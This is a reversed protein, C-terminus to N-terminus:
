LSWTIVTSEIDVVHRRLATSISVTSIIADGCIRITELNIDILVGTQVIYYYKFYINLDFIVIYFIDDRYTKLSLYIICREGLQWKM